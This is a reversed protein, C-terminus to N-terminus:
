PSPRVAFWDAAEDKRMLERYHAHLTQVSHGAELATEPINGTVVVRASIWSHRFGNDALDLNATRCIDRIRDIALNTCIPGEKQYHSNLWEVAADPIPVLRRAPTNPKADSVRLIKRELDIDQWLQGHIESRRLGCFAAVALAPVYHKAKEQILGFAGRLQAPTVLGIEGRPERAADTREAATLTDLPLLGRKRSWRFLAVVRKRHTNRTVPHSFTGLWASIALESVASIPQEGFKEKFKPLTRAYGSKTDVNAARKAALFATIADSVTTKSPAQKGHKVSWAECAKIIDPGALARARQWEQVITLLPVGAAAKRAALYEDREALSMAAAEVRGSALQEAKLTAEAKAEALDTFQRTERKGGVHAAVTYVLRGDARVLRYVKVTVSGRKISLPFRESAM